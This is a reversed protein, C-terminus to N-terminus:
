PKLALLTPPAGVDINALIRRGALDVATVTQEGADAVFAKLGDPLIVFAGPQKGLEVEGQMAGTNADLFLLKAGAEALLMKGNPTLAIREVPASLQIQREVKRRRCNIVQITKGPSALAYAHRGGPLFRLDVRGRGCQIRAVIRLSPYRIIAIEGTGSTVYVEREGPRVALKVPAFDLPITRVRTFTALNVVSVSRSGQNAVLALYANPPTGSHHCGALFSAALCVAPLRLQRLWAM